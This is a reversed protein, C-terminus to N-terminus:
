VSSKKSAFRYRRLPLRDLALLFIRHMSWPPWLPLLSFQTEHFKKKETREPSDESLFMACDKWESTMSM